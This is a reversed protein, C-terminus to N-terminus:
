GGSVPEAAPYNYEELGGGDNYKSPCKVLINEAVFVEGDAYGEIVVKEADEFNAPKPNAYRVSRIEGTEDQMRFSFINSGADYRFAEPEVWMGVVHARAGTDAAEEFTMYGGVQSGFNMFLVSSFGAILIFGIIPKAKM